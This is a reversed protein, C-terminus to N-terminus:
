GPERSSSAASGRSAGARGERALHRYITIRLAEANDSLAASM